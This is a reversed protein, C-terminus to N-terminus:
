LCINALTALSWTDVMGDLDSDFGDLKLMELRDETEGEVQESILKIITKEVGDATILYLESQSNDDLPAGGGNIGINEDDRTVAPDPIEGEDDRYFQRAYEGYNEGYDEAVLVIQNYYEEYDITGRRVEKVIRELAIRTEEYLTRSAETRRKSAFSDTFLGASIAIVIMFITLAIIAEVLTFGKQRRFKTSFKSM